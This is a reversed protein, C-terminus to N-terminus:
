AADTLKQYIRELAHDVRGDIVRHRGEVVCGGSSIEEDAVWTVDRGPAVPIQGGDESTALTLVSLDQPNVRVRVAEEAPFLAVAQRALAAVAHSDGKLERGIVHRAIAVALACLNEQATESWGREAAMVQSAATEAADLASRVLNADRQMVEAAGEDYGRQYTEELEAQREEAARRAESRREPQFEQGSTASGDRVAGAQLSQPSWSDTVVDGAAPQPRTFWDSSWSMM